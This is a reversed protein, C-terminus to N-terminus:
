FVLLRMILSWMLLNMFEAQFHRDINASSLVDYNETEHNLFYFNLKLNKIENFFASENLRAQNSLTIKIDDIINQDNFLDRYKIAEAHFFKPDFEPYSM